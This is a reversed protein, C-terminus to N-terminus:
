IINNPLFPIKFANNVCVRRVYVKSPFPNIKHESIYIYYICHTHYQAFYLLLLAFSRKQGIFLEERKGKQIIPDKQARDANM